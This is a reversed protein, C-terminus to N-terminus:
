PQQSVKALDNGILRVCFAAANRTVSFEGSQGCPRIGSSAPVAYAGLGSTTPGLIGNWAVQVGSADAAGALGMAASAPTAISSAGLFTVNYILFGMSTTAGYLRAGNANQTGISFPSFAASTPATYTVRVTIPGGATTPINGAQPFTTVDASRSSVVAGNVLVGSYQFTMNDAVSAGWIFLSSSNDGSFTIDGDGEALVLAVRKATGTPTGTVLICRYWGGGANVISASGWWHSASGTAVVAAGVVGTSLNYYGIVGGSLRDTVMVGLWTNAGAKAYVSLSQAKADTSTYNQYYFHTSAATGDQVMVYVTSSTGDPAVVAGDSGANLRQLTWTGAATFGSSWLLANNVAGLAQCGNPTFVPVGSVTAVLLGSGSPSDAYYVAGAGTVVGGTYTPTANGAGFALLNSVLPAYFTLAERVDPAMNVPKPFVTIGVVPRASALGWGNGALLAIALALRRM